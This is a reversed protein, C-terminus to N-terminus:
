SIFFKWAMKYCIELIYKAEININKRINFKVRCFVLSTRSTEEDYDASLRMNNAVFFPCKERINLPVSRYGSDIKKNKIGYRLMNILGGMNKSDGIEVEFRGM